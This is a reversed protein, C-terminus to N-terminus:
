LVESGLEVLKGVGHLDAVQYHHGAFYRIADSDALHHAGVGIIWGVRVTM